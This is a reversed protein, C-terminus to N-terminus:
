KGPKKDAKKKVPAPEKVPPKEEVLSARCRPCITAKDDILRDCYPCTKM